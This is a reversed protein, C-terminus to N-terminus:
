LLVGQAAASSVAGSGPFLDVLEDVDPDYSLADLVWRTWVAPKAGAFRAGPPPATLVDPVQAGYVRGEETDPPRARRGRPPYLIVPEWTTAIRHATPLPRLKHWVMLRHPVPLPRYAELGDPTTAIAWGDYSDLLEELLLRHRAPDDWDGADPHFDAPTNGGRDRPGDGYWRRARSRSVVRAGGDALDHRESLQPPYPPDAIALKM